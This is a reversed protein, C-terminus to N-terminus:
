TLHTDFLVRLYRATDLPKVDEEGPVRLSAIIPQKHSHTFHILQYKPPSFVSAHRGAWIRATAHAEELAKCKKEASEETALFVVDDIYGAAWIAETTLTKLLDANYFLYLIPSLSSGQPIGTKIEWDLTCEPLRLETRRDSVFSGLFNVYSTPIRRKRLNQLLRLHSVNDFAETVDLFLATAVEGRNWAQHIRELLAHM